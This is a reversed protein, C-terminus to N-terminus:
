EEDGVQDSMIKKVITSKANGPLLREMWLYTYHHLPGQSLGVVALQKMKEKDYGSENINKSKSKEIRQAFYEGVYMLCGSSVTNTLLLYKGFLASHQENVVQATKKYFSILLKRM